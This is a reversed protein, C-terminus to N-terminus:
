YHNRRFISNHLAQISPHLNSKWKGNTFYQKTKMKIFMIELLFNFDIFPTEMKSFFYSTGLFYLSEVTLYGPIKFHLCLVWYRLNHQVLDLIKHPIRTDFCTPPTTEPSELCSSTSISPILSHSEMNCNPSFRQWLIKLSKLLFYVFTEAQLVM